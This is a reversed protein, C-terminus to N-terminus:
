ALVSVSTHPRHRKWGRAFWAYAVVDLIVVVAFAVRLGGADDLGFLTRMLDIVLGIGWQALFSGVFMFLNLTTNARGAM